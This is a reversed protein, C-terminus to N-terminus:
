FEHSTLTRYDECINKINKLFWLIVSLPNRQDFSDYDFFGQLKITLAWVNNVITM